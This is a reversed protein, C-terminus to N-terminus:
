HRARADPRSREADRLFVSQRVVQGSGISHNPRVTWGHAPLRPSPSDWAWWRPRPACRRHALEVINVACLSHM